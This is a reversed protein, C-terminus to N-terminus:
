RGTVYTIASMLHNGLNSLNDQSVRLLNERSPRTVKAEIMEIMQVALSEVNGADFFRVNEANIEKNVPINSVLIPVGLSAADYICGGGPGGEFLSPQLVSLANKMIEIQDRKPIHGLIQVKDKLSNDSIFEKLEDLYGPHRYDEIAGTCVIGVDYNDAIKSLARLATLHDKHIWFQNSILFYTKPLDYKFRVDIMGPEFWKNTSNPSFPLNFISNADAWPYYRCIDDKVSQSNVIVAKADRLTTAYSIERNFCEVPEFNNPMYKHQFDALYGVWPVPFESGLSGNHPLAVDAHIRKLCRLLAANSSEHFVINIEGEDAHGFVDLMSDHYNAQPLALWPRKNEITGAVSRKLVRVIDIPAEIKNIVPLLLYIKLGCCDKKALLGNAVHRLFDVGGAWKFGGGLLAVTLVKPTM